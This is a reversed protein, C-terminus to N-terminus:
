WPMAIENNYLFGARLVLAQWLCWRGWQAPMWVLGVAMCLSDSREVSFLLYTVMVVAHAMSTERKYDASEVSAVRGLTAM